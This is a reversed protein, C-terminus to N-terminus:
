HKNKMRTRRKSEMGTKGSFPTTQENESKIKRPQVTGEYCRVAIIYRTYYLAAAHTEHLEQFDASLQLSFAAVPFM